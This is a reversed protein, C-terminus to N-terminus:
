TLNLQYHEQDLSFQLKELERQMLIKVMFIHEVGSIAKDAGPSVLEENDLYIALLDGTRSIRDTVEYFIDSGDDDFVINVVPQALEPVTGPSADTLNKSEFGTAVENYYQPDFFKVLDWVNQDFNEPKDRGCERVRFELQATSGILRKASQIGGSAVFTDLEGSPQLNVLNYKSESLSMM